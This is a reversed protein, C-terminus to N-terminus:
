GEAGARRWLGMLHASPRHAEAAASHVPRSGTVLLGSGRQTITSATHEADVVQGAAVGTLQQFPTHTALGDCHETRGQSARGSSRCGTRSRRSNTGRRLTSTRSELGRNLLHTLHGKSLEHRRAAASHGLVWCTLTHGALAIWHGPVPWHAVERVLQGAATVEHGPKTQAVPSHTGSRELHGAMMVHGVAAFGSSQGSLRHTLLGESHPDSRAHGV